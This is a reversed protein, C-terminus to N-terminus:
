SQRQHIRQGEADKGTNLAALSFSGQLGQGAACLEAERFEAQIDPPVDKPLPAAATAFPYFATMFTAGM